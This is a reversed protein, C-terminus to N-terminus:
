FKYGIGAIFSIAGEHDTYHWVNTFNPYEYKYKSREWIIGYGFNQYIFLGKYISLKIGYGIMNEITVDMEHANVNIYNTDPSNLALYTWDDKERTFGFSYQFYFNFFKHEQFPNIQYTFQFAPDHINFVAGGDVFLRPGLSFCSRKYYITFSPILFENGSNTGNIYLLYSVSVGLKLKQKITDDPEFEFTKKIGKGVSHFVKDLILTDHRTTDKQALVILPLILIFFLIIKKM